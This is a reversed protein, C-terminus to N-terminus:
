QIDEDKVVIWNKDATVAVGAQKQKAALDNWMDEIQVMYKDKRDVWIRMGGNEIDTSHFLMFRDNAPTDGAVLIPKRAEDIYEWIAGAKGSMWTSPTWLYPTLILNENEGPVFSGERIQKRVTTLANTETDKLLMSVGLVNEPKINYGYKPDSAVDRVAEANAASIVYVEIGNEMMKNVLEVQGQYIEPRNVTSEVVDDGDFYTIPIDGEYALLEDVYGKLDGLSLGAFSQAIWPYCVMDDVECLRYYYSNLSEQHDATDKFPMIILSQDLTERTLVGKMELYPLLSETLDYHYMTNDMDFVAYAGTNAHQEILSNLQTAAEKPWHELETASSPTAIGMTLLAAAALTSRVTKM